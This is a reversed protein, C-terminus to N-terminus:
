ENSEDSMGRALDSMKKRVKDYGERKSNKM